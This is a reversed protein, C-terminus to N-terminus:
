FHSKSFNTDIRDAIMKGWKKKLEEGPHLGDPLKEYYKKVRSGKKQMVADATFPTVMNNEMNLEVIFKNIKILAGEITTQMDSYKDQFKLHSTRNCGLRHLNWKKIDMPAITCVCPKCGLSKVQSTLNEIKSKMSEFVIEQNGEITVEEYAGDRTMTTIDNIGVLFYVHIYSYKKQYLKIKESVLSKIFPIKAGSNSFIVTEEKPKCSLELDRARSTGLVMAIRNDAISNM